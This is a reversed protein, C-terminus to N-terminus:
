AWKRTAWHLAMEALPTRPQPELAKKARHRINIARKRCQKTCYEARPDREPPIENGCEICERM